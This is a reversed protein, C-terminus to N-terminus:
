RLRKPPGLPPGPRPRAQLLTSALSRLGRLQVPLATLLLPAKQPARHSTRALRRRPRRRLNGPDVLGREQTRPGPPLRHLPCLLPEPLSGAALRSRHSQPLEALLFVACPSHSSPCSSKVI